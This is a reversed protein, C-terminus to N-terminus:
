DDKSQFSTKWWFRLWQALTVILTAGILYILAYGWLILGTTQQSLPIVRHNAEDIQYRYIVTFLESTLRLTYINKELEKIESDFNQYRFSTNKKWMMSIDANEAFDIYQVIAPETESLGANIAIPFNYPAKHETNFHLTNWYPLVELGMILYFIMLAILTKIKAAKEKITTALSM